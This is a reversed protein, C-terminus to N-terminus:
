HVGPVFRWRVRRRYTDYEPFRRVLMSEELRSKVELVIVLPVTPALTLPSTILSWGLAILILGGYIPHRVFRYVGGVQLRAHELPMPFPTLSDHLGALGPIFLFQGGVAILLGVGRRLWSEENAWPPGAVGAVVIAVMLAVQTFTWGEGRPGFSPIRM